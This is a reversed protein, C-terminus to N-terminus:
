GALISWAGILASEARNHDLKRKWHESTKFLRTAFDRAAQKDAPVSLARKWVTPSVLKVQVGALRLVAGITGATSGMSFAVTSAIGPPANLRECVVRDAPGIDALLDRLASADIYRRTKGTSTKESFTPLDHVAEVTLTSGDSLGNIVALAGTVGPDIGIVRM